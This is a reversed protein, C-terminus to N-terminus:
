LICYYYALVKPVGHVSLLLLSTILVYYYEYAYLTHLIYGQLDLYLERAISCNEHRRLGGCPKALIPVNKMYREQSYM